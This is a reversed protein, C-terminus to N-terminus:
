RPEPLLPLGEALRALDAAEAPTAVGAGALAELHPQVRPGDRLRMLRIFLRRLGVDEPAAAIARELEDAVTADGESARARLLLRTWRRDDSPCKERAAEAAARAESPQGLRLRAEAELVRADCTRVPVGALADLAASPDGAGLHFRAAAVGSQPDLAVAEAFLARATDPANLAALRDAALRLRDARDPLVTRAAAPPVTLLAKEIWPRADDNDPLNLALLARWAAAAGAPDGALGLARARALHGWPLTPAAAIAADAAALAGAADGTLLHVRSRGVLPRPDLPRQRTAADFAALAAAAPAEGPLELLALDALEATAALGQALAPESPAAPHTPAVRALLPPVAVLAAGLALLGAAGRALTHGRAPGAPRSADGAAAGVGVTLLQGFLLALAPIRLPFDVLGAALLAAAGGLAGAKLQRRGPPAGAIAGLSAHVAFGVAAGLLLVAPGGGEALAQLPEAHAHSVEVFRVSSKATRFADEFGGPGVGLLPNAGALRLTDLAIEPRASLPDPAPDAGPLLAALRAALRAPGVGVAGLAATAGVVAVVARAPGRSAALGFAFAGVAVALLGGRSGTSVVGGLLTALGLLVGVRVAPEPRALLGLGLPVAAALLAAAHNPNVFTGFFADRAEATSLPYPSVAYIHTVGAARQAVGLLAFMVACVFLGIVLRQRRRHHRAAVATAGALLLAAAGTGLADLAAAPHPVLPYAGGGALALAGGRVAEVGPQLLARLWAPLPVLMGLALVWALLAPGLARTAAPHPLVDAPTRALAFAACAAAVAVVALRPGPQVGGFLLVAVPVPVLLAWGMAPHDRRRRGHTEM